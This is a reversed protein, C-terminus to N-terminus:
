YITTENTATGSADASTDTGTSSGAADTADDSQSQADTGDTTSGDGSSADKDADKKETKPVTITIKGIGSTKTDYRVREGDRTVVVDSPSDTNIEISDKVTYEKKFGKTVTGGDSTYKGGIKIEIWATKEGTYEVTVKYQSVTKKKSSGSGAKASGTDASGLDTLSIKPKTTATATDAATGGNSCGRFVLSVLVILLVTAAVGCGIVFRRDALIASLDLGSSRRPSVGGRGRPPQRRMGRSTGEAAGYAAREGARGRGGPRQGRQERYSGRDRSTRREPMGGERRADRGEGEGRYARDDRVAGRAQAARYSGGPRGAFDRYGRGDRAARQSMRGTRPDMEHASLSEPVYGAQPPRQGYRSGMGRTDVMMFRGTANSSRPSADLAAPIARGGSANMTNEYRYLGDFYAEVVERPNLGLFRAYSSIMGQAYGRPPMAEFNCTEFYEIIQPRMKITNAVQQISIGMERRRNLLMDGFSAAM